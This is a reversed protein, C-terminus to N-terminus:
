IRLVSKFNYKKDIKDSGGLSTLEMFSIVGAVDAGSKEVLDIAANITGGTAVIDDIILVKNDSSLMDSKIEYVESSYEADCKSKICLGPLKGEKRMAIIGVDNLLAFASGFIFGRSDIGLVKNFRLNKAKETMEDIVFRFLKPNNLIGSIDIFNVGSKPFDKYCKLNYKVDKLLNNRDFRDMM